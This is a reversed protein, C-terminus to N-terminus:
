KKLRRKEDMAFGTPVPKFPGKPSVKNMQFLRLSRIDLSSIVFYDLLGGRIRSVDRQHAEKFPARIRTDGYRRNNVQIIYAHLDNAASEVLSNYTEIDKNWEVLFLADVKGRLQQRYDINLFDNCILGSFTFGDKTLIFKSRDTPELKLGAKDYLESAEHVAPILKEQIIRVQHTRGGVTLPVVFVMQNQVTSTSRDISYDIGAILTIGSGKIQKSIMNIAYQPVSLEPLVIYDIKREKNELIGNILKYLRKLRTGDPEAMGKIFAEWSEDLIEYSTIAVVPNNKYPFNNIFVHKNDGDEIIPVKIKKLEYVNVFANFIKQQDFLWKDLFRTIELYTMKRTPLFFATPVLDEERIYEFVYTQFIQDISKIKEVIFPEILLGKKEKYAIFSKSLPKHDLLKRFYSNLNSAQKDFLNKLPILHIDALFFKNIKERDVEMETLKQLKEYFSDLKMEPLLLSGGTYIALEVTKRLYSKYKLVDDDQEMFIDEMLLEASQILSEYLSRFAKFDCNYVALRIIRVMYQLYNNLIDPDIIFNSTVRFLDQVGDKWFYYPHTLVLEEASRVFLAYKLRQISIGDSKRLSNVTETSDSNAQIIGDTFKDLDNEADPLLRWESSNENLENEIENVISMGCKKDLFFIREKDKNFFIQTKPSYSLKFRFSKEDDRDRSLKKVRECIYDWMSERGTIKKNKGLVLFIDDVYRGYYLPMLEQEIAEDFEKLVLNAIVKSASLGIPIGVHGQGNFSEKTKQTLNSYCHESWYSIAKILLNNLYKQRQSLYIRPMFSKFFSESALFSVDINHYFSKIDATLAVLEDTDDMKEKIADLGKKQWKRYDHIYARFHNTEASPHFGSANLRSGYSNESLKLEIEYAFHDIWLSSIVHFDVTLNSIIRFDINKIQYRKDKWRSKLSSYYVNEEGLVHDNSFHIKKVIPYHDDSASFSSSTVFEIEENNLKTLLSSLNELLNQEYEPFALLSVQLKEHFVESKAKKYAVILENLTFHM